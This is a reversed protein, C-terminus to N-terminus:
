VGDKTFSTSILKWFSNIGSNQYHTSALVSWTHHFFFLGDGSIVKEYVNSAPYAELSKV